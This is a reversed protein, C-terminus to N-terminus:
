LARAEPGIMCAHLYCKNDQAGARDAERGGSGDANNNDQTCYFLASVQTRTSEQRSSCAEKKQTTTFFHLLVYAGAGHNVHM